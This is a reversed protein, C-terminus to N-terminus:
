RCPESSPMALFTTWSSTPSAWSTRAGASYSPSDGVYVPGSTGPQDGWYANSQAINDKFRRDAKELAPNQKGIYASAGGKANPIMLSWTEGKGYSWQTIYDRDLGKTQNDSDSALVPKGRTTEKGYDYNAYLITFNTMIAFVAAM